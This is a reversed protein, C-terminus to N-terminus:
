GNGRFTFLYEEDNWMSTHSCILLVDIDYKEIIYDIPVKSLTRYDLYVTTDFHSALVDRLARGYSDGTIVLNLGNGESNRIVFPYQDDSYRNGKADAAYGYMTIYHDAGVAKNIEGRQYEDYLGVEATKIEKLTDPDIVATERKPLDYEYFSFADYGKDYLEGLSRGYSGLYVFGYTESVENEKTPVRMGGLDLEESMMAYVDEYGRRAGRHNWHHDTQYHIEMYDDLDRYQLHDSRIYDPLADLIEQYHDAATTGLFDNFWPTDFAQTVYYTYIGIDPYEEHIIELQETRRQVIEADMPDTQPRLTIYGTDEILEYSGISHLVYRNKQEQPQQQEQQQEQIQEQPQEQQQSPQQQEALLSVAEYASNEAANFMRLYKKVVLERFPFQDSLAADLREVPSEHYVVSDTEPHLIMYFTAMTRNESSTMRLSPFFYSCLCLLLIAFAILSTSKYKM